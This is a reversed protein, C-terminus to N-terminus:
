LTRNNEEHIKEVAEKIERYGKIAESSAINSGTAFGSLYAKRLEFDSAKRYIEEISLLYEEAESDVLDWNIKNHIDDSM